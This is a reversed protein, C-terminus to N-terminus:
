LEGGTDLHQFFYITHYKCQRVTKLCNNYDEKKVEVTLTVSSLCTSALYEQTIFGVQMMNKFVGSNYFAGFCLIASVTAFELIMIISGETLYKLQIGAETLTTMTLRLKENTEDVSKSKKVQELSYTALELFTEQLKRKRSCLGENNNSSEKEAEEGSIEM